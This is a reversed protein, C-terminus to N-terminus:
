EVLHMVLFPVKTNFAVKKIVPEDTIKEFFSHWYDIMAIMGIQDSEAVMKQISTNLFTEEKMEVFEYDATNLYKKVLEKAQQQAPELENHKGMHGVIIKSQLLGSLDLIPKFEYAEFMHEYGTVFLITRKQLSKEWNEPVVIIPCFNINKIVKYANSGLFAEKLGTAGKTGMIILDIREELVTKGITDTLNGPLSIAQFTHKPHTTTSKARQVIKELEQESEEKLLEYPRTEGAMRIKTMLGSSSGQFANLVVFHCDVMNFVALAYAIANWANESFDTPLVIRKM